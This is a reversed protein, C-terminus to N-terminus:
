FRERRNQSGSSKMARSAARTGFGLTLRVRKWPTNAGLLLCRANTVGAFRPLPLLALTTTSRGDGASRRADIVQACRRLRTNLMSMSVQLSHPPATFTIAQMSSGATILCIRSCRLCFASVLSDLTKGSLRAGGTPSVWPSNSQRTRFNGTADLISRERWRPLSQDHWTTSKSGVTPLLPRTKLTVPAMGAPNPRSNNSRLSFPM